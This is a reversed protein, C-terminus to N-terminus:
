RNVEAPTPAKWQGADTAEIEARDKATLRNRWYTPSAPCLQCAPIHGAPGPHRPFTCQAANPTSTDATM